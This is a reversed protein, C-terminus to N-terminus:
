IHILSLIVGLRVDMQGLVELCHVMHSGLYPAVFVVNM